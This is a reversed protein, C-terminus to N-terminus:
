AGREATWQGGDVGYAVVHPRVVSVGMAQYAEQLRYFMEDDRCIGLVAGGSGCFKSSAGLARATEILRRNLVNIRYIQSRLDFNRNLRWNMEDIDGAAGVVDGTQQKARARSALLSAIQPPSTSASLARDYVAVAEASRGLALLIDGRV